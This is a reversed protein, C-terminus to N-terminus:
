VVFIASESSTPHVKRERCGMKQSVLTTAKRPGHTPRVHDVAIHLRQQVEARRVSRRSHRRRAPGERETHDQAGIEATQDVCPHTTCSQDGQLAKQARIRARGGHQMTGEEEVQDKADLERSLGLHPM